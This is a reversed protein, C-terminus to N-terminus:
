LRITMRLFVKDRGPEYVHVTIKKAQYVATACNPTCDDAWIARWARGETSNWTTWHLRGFPDGPTNQTPHQGTVGALLVSGDTALDITNPRAQLKGGVGTLVPVQDALAVPTAITALAATM